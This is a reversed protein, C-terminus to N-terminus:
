EGILSTREMRMNKGSSPPLALSRFRAFIVEARFPIGHGLFTRKYNKQRQCRYMYVWSCFIKNFETDSIFVSLSLSLSLPIHNKSQTNSGLSFNYFVAAMDAIVPFISPYEYHLIRDSLYYRLHSYHIMIKFQPSRCLAKYLERLM